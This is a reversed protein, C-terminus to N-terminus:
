RRIFPLFFGYQVTASQPGLLISGDEVLIEIWYYYSRGAEATSDTFAFGTGSPNALPQANLLVKVGELSGSRYINFGDAALEEMTQLFIDVGWLKGSVGASFAATLASGNLDLGVLVPDHDSSRYPTATYLDQPKFETNYDIVSPEDTNIHWYTVGTIQADLQPTALAHDLYGSFGDFTYSYREAGPVWAAVEDIMGWSKMIDIPDEDGYSNLDGIVLIDPEFDDLQDVLRMLHKAQYRRKWNWCGQGDGQDADLGTASGCSKSKFHNVIVTFEEATGVQRFTQVLPPRDFVNGYLFMHTQYNMAPGSPEVVAPKYIMAVKIEDSGPAPEVIFNYTGAGMVGNLGNVLDQIASYPATGDNEIEMLGVVDANLAVLAPIIKDRQRVFEALTNAGRSTPFGGGLGDGNFYNLVNFSAVKIEGGVDAPATTRENVRTIVPAVTPHVRFDHLTTDSSIQGEQLIGTIGAITDGQRVTNDQGIYPIPNPNQVTTGDDLFIIRRANYDFTDGLGNGNTPNYMRGEASLTLQGYRGLFYNQSITLTEPISVLMNEFAELDGNSAEPLDVVVTAPVPNGTSCISVSALNEVQTNYLYEIVQGTVRVRDGVNVDVSGPGYIFLADSTAPNSDGTMDQLYFGNQWASGQYDGIVVGEVSVFSGVLPSTSGTGQVDYAATYPDGCTELTRFTWSYNAAMNDPPDETDQDTVQAAYITVTCNEAKVFDTTPDLTYQKASLTVAAPHNGSSSCTIDFWTGTVNVLENFTLVINADLAVGLANNLPTVKSVVPPYDGACDSDHFGLGDFTDTAFGNWEISPDFVDTANTDGQCVATKRRLTNDATSQLGSGWESGPDFGVQGISDVVTGGSGYAGGKILIIADDGNFWGAGNTQDAQALITANANSQAFVYVDGAKVVGTLELTLGANSNGNFFMQIKYDGADLDVDAGTANFIELAKNNSSGEIYESFFLDGATPAALALPKAAQVAWAPGFLGLALACVLLFNFIRALKRM